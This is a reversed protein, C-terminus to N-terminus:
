PTPVPDRRAEEIIAATAAPDNRASRYRARLTASGSRRGDAGRRSGAPHWLHHLDADGQHHPGALTDLAYGWASDEYGWGLFRPDPPGVLDYTARTMALWGGGVCVTQVGNLRPRGEPTAGPGAAILAQTGEDTLRHVHSHPVVWPASHTLTAAERAVDPDLVVDADTVILVDGTCRTVADAIAAGKSWLGDSGDSGIVVQWDPHHHGYHGWLWGVNRVREASTPRFPIVVSVTM